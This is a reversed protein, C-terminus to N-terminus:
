RECNQTKGAGINQTNCTDRGNSGDVTGSGPGVVLLTGDIGSITDDGWGSYIFGAGTAGLSVAEIHDAGERGWVRAVGGIGAGVAGMRITDNGFGGDVGGDMTVAGTTITDDGADGWIRGNVLVDGVITITDDGADGAVYGQGTVDGTITIIDDGGRGVVPFDIDGACVIRDNGPGGTKGPTGNVTCVGQAHAPTSLALSAAPLLLAALLAVPGTALGRGTLRLM